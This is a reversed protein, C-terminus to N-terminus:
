RWAATVGLAAAEEDLEREKKLMPNRVSTPLRKFARHDTASQLKLLQAHLLTHRCSKLVSSSKDM